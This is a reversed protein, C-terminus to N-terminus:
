KLNYNKNIARSLETQEEQTLGEIGNVKFKGFRKDAKMNAMLEDFTSAQGAFDAGVYAYYVNNIKEIKLVGPEGTGKIPNENEAEEIVAKIITHMMSARGLFFCGIGWGIWALIEMM